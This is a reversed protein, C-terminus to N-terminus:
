SGDTMYQSVRSKMLQKHNDIGAINDNTDAAAFGNNGSSNLFMQKSSKQSSFLCHLVVSNGKLSFILIGNINEINRGTSIVYNINGSFLRPCHPWRGPMKTSELVYVDVVIFCMAICVSQVWLPWVCMM